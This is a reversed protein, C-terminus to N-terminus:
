EDQLVNPLAKRFRLASPSEMAVRRRAVEAASTEPQAEPMMLGLEVALASVAPAKMTPVSAGNGLTVAKLTV